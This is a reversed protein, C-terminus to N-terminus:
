IISLNQAESAVFQKRLLDAQLNAQDTVLKIQRQLSTIQNGTEQTLNSCLSLEQHVIRIGLDQAAKADFDELALVTGDVSLTGTDPRFVGCLIRMLTSKGAGNGGVLGLVDGRAIELSIDDNARTPGFSKVVGTLSILLGSSPGQEPAPADARKTETATM